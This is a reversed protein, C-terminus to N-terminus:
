HKIARNQEIKEDPLLFVCILLLILAEFSAKRERIQALLYIHQFKYYNNNKNVIVDFTDLNHPRQTQTILPVLTSIAMVM